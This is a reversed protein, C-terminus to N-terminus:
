THYYISDVPPSVAVGGRTDQRASKGRHSSGMGGAPGQARAPGDFHRLQCVIRLRANGAWPTHTSSMDNVWVTVVCVFMGLVLGGADVVVEGVLGHVCAFCFCLRIGPPSPGVSSVMNDFGGILMDGRELHVDGPDDAKDRKADFTRQATASVGLGLTVLVKDVKKRDSNRVARSIFGPAGAVMRPNRIKRAVNVATWVSCTERLKRSDERLSSLSPMMPAGVDVDGAASGEGDIDDLEMESDEQPDAADAAFEGRRLFLARVCQHFLSTDDIASQAYSGLTDCTPSAHTDQGLGILAGLVAFILVLNRRLAGDPEETADSLGYMGGITETGGPTQRSVTIAVSGARTEVDEDLYLRHHQPLLTKSMVPLNVARTGATYSTVTRQCSDCRYLGNDPTQTSALIGLFDAGACAACM